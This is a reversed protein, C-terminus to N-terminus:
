KILSLQPLVSAAGVVLDIADYVLNLLLALADPVAPLGTTAVILYIFGGLILIETLPSLVLGAVIGLPAVAGMQLLLLPSVAAQAALSICVAASLPGPLWPGLRRQLARTLILIGTVALFSLQCSLSLLVEPAWLCYVLFALGLAQISPSSRGIFDAIAAFLFMLFARIISPKPGVLFVYATTGLLFMISRMRRGPLPRALLALLSMVVNLHMGSLALLHVTGSRVFDQVLGPECGDSFGLLLAAVLGSSRGLDQIRALLKEVMGRRLGDILAPELRRPGRRDSRAFYLSADLPRLGGPVELQLQEGDFVRGTGSMSVLVRAAASAQNGRGDSCRGVDLFFLSAGSRSRFSDGSVRGM